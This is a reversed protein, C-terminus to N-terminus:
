NGANTYERSALWERIDAERWAVARRGIRVPRPFLKRSMLDYIGSRSLGTWDEVIPRRLYKPTEFANPKNM